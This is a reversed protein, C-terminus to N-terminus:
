RRESQEEMMSEESPWEVHVGFNSAIHRDLVRYIESPEVTNLETTSEKGTMAEQIPRWLVEKVREKSWPVDVAKVALVAKMEYGADNLAHSLQECYLHLAKNQQETRNTM